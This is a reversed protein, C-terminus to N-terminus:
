YELTHGTNSRGWIAWVCSKYVGTCSSQEARPAASRTPKVTFNLGVASPQTLIQYWSGLWLVPKRLIFGAWVSCKLSSLNYGWLLCLLNCVKGFDNKDLSYANLYFRYGFPFFIRLTFPQCTLFYTSFIFGILGSIIWAQYRNIM